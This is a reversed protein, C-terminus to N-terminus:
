KTKRYRTISEYAHNLRQTQQNAFDEFGKALGKSYVIDPHYEAILSRYKMKIAQDTDSEHCGLIAYCETINITSDGDASTAYENYRAAPIGLHEPIRKLIENEISHIEGDARAINWLAAYMVECLEHDAFESYQRAYEYITADDSKAKNFIEIAIKKDDADLGIENFYNTIIAIENKCVVGDAKAMKALMSCFSVFFIAQNSEAADYTFDARCHPCTWRGPSDIVVSGNCHPCDVALQNKDNGLASSIWAGLGAGVGAGIPGGFAMGIAAGIGSGLWGMVIEGNKTRVYRAHHL